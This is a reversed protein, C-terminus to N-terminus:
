HHILPLFLTYLPREQIPEPYIITVNVTITDIGGNGDSVQVVFSDSGNYDTTPIYSIEKSTGMGSANAVGHLAPTLISWTLTDSLDVDTAHLTLSFAIPLGDEVMTVDISNGETIVPVNNVATFTATVTTNANITVSGSVVNASWSGFSWGDAPTASMAVVDGYHYHANGPDATVTGDGIKNITLSYEDQTFTATVTTNANITVSGSVVNASWSGFSWGVAPTASMAVVDGYHYHANGPDATVTGDGIKNITLSYEDQAFSATVTIDATVNTDTRAPTSLSDSWSVFHYGTYPVAIVESGNGGHNVSQPTTGSITGNAGATYTLQFSPTFQALAQIESLNLARNYVLADDMWGRFWHSANTADQAGITLPLNNTAILETTAISSEQIGNIYLRMIAGDYTAAVHMWTGNIPYETTANIRLNDGNAVQNIRFFVKQSSPDTKTTALTLEYGDTVGNTAKNILDQTAYQEPKIWAAITIQNTLDLSADDPVFAYQSTGNLDLAYTGVKGAAWAPSSVISADNTFTSGDVLVTGSGEEMQWCGVLTPDSGCSTGDAIITDIDTTLNNSLIPDTIGGASAVTATNALSGRAGLDVKASVTYTVSAGVPLNVTDNINGSGSATCTGSSAGACTWSVNTLKAPLTDAVTAGNVAQPGSNSATITYTLTDGPRVASTGDTKTIALDVGTTPIVTCIQGGIVSGNSYIVVLESSYNQKTSSVDNFSEARLTKRPGFAISSLNSQRYVIPNNGESQTYVYTLVGRTEDFEINGRTGSEDVAYMDDWTGGPRRVVLAMKPYGATDYSTKIAAFVTGDSEVKVNIHDDAMGYTPSGSGLNQWAPNFPVTETTWTAADAGDTHVFFKYVRNYQNGWLVGVKNISPMTVLATVDDDWVNSAELSVPSSWTSYPSDSYFVKVGNAANNVSVWMRGTSDIDMTAVESGGSMSLAASIVPAQYTGDSFQVTALKTSSVASPEFLLIYASDGLSKVDARVSTSTSLKQVEIWTIDELKWLWTGASTAGSASTPFVAYWTGNYNWLKSQPKEGSSATQPKTNLITCTLDGPPVPIETYNVSATHIGAPMTVTNTSATSTDSTTGTWSSIQSGSTPVAGSLSITAGASYQGTACGTSNAPSVVPDSGQGTHSLTLAYCTPPIVTYNVSATHIGAPMTVTNTSATSTDSTTGTWSSIQSGSTPVAGSLSITAGASYQGTACGTSNAPSAVPDSGQGTHSLTLADCTPAMGALAQIEVLSLARNYVRADDITGQLFNIPTTAPEAGIGLNTANAVIAFGPKTGELVGNIYLRINTGDYTAAVHMWTTGDIPYSTLSNIRYNADNGNLRVFAKGSSALSIEYGNPTSTGITKKIINQTGLKGPRVWAALTIATTADLSNSDPVIAYQGTGSLSLAQGNHGAVWAPTGTINGDNGFATADIIIPSGEGEEMPWCAVLNADSGCLGSAAQTVNWTFNQSSPILDDTVSVSASFPSHHAAHYSITGSILGSGPNISLGDPLGTASYTLTQAPLDVNSAVIQLSVANGETNTQAGPNTVVPADNVATVTVNVTSTNSNVTVDNAQYTFIDSGNYNATPVYNLKGALVSASGHGPQAVISYTLIDGADVDSCSPTAEGTTDEPTTLVVDSCVPADNVATVTVNVIITDTGGNGDSVQLVFNDLGNYNANPIYGVAKSTGTGSASAAGNSAPTSISWTLTDGNPDTANLTKSFATPVGDESMTVSTSAGETIIPPQNTATETTFSWTPSVAAAGSNDAVAYWEYDTNNLLGSWTVTADSGSAVTTSDILTFEATGDMAYPLDLQNNNITRFKDQNPSYTTIHIMNDTPSFHMIRLYGSQSSDVSQYDSRLGYVTRGDYVNTKMGTEDLHGGLMLFLNPNDKLAEYIANAQTTFNNGSLLDHTVVIARKTQNAALIGDAWTIVPSTITMSNDYEIFLVIFDMGSASFTAYTNDYDSAGDPRGGYTLQTSIRTGFATNFNTTSSPAGDHNGLTLGYPVGGTTLIDWATTATTFEGPYTSSSDVNDGLSLVYKINSTTKNAVVWNMQANYISPYSKAYLQPDPIAILTFDAGAPGNKVRGYFSVSLPASRSDTVHVTLPASTSSGTALDAPSVLSPTGPILNIDFPAGPVWAYNTGTITGNVATAISDGVSIGTSENLGWRAVLGTGTTIQHNINTIIETQTLARNWVRAEDIVGKFFGNTGGSTNLMTGLSAHQTTDSRPAAGVVLTTELKGDLYLKWTAGDYTAAAHHWTNDLIPTVGVVPHNLGTAMDEFDAAVTDTVDDIVLMWNADVTSGESQQAGHAVLPIANAIGGSGTTIATGAGTRKFWTEITFTALDLKDPDGFTVYTDSDTTFELASGAELQPISNAENSNISENGSTDVARVVYFYETNNTLGTDSYASTVILNSNVKVYVGSTIGRYVNYGALDSDSNNDWDLAVSRNAGIAVLGTPAAPPTIDIVLNFPAGATWVPGNTLTGPFTGVSSAITTGSGENIGWRALLGTGSTIESNITARIESQTHAVNWIRAEDLVGQFYGSSTGTSTLYTGLGAHQISDYRPLCTSALTRELNGNLYLKLAIGDYTFAGHYWTNNIIPTVGVIPNNDGAPRAGCIAYTEFDAALVNDSSRIGLIYNEDVNSDEAQPSGKTVLPIATVGNTGTSVAIGTGTRKFWTEITFNQTALGAATGFTVYDNTGDFNLGAGLSALPTANVENSAVSQNASADVATVVYYYPTGNTRGGDSFNTVNVLTGGNIPSTLPVSPATARYVNYGAVDLDAPATWSLSVGGSYPNATLGTPAAPPILDPMPFGAVWTSSAVLTGSPRGAISNAATTGTGENLGWRAILGTGSTLEKYMDAQIEAQTRVVDWIRPEDIHGSLYGSTSTPNGSSQLSSALAAHQISTNEPTFASALTLTKDLTGDIYLKWTQGDYTVAIHHWSGAPITATGTVPHNGGNITDEFDASLRGTQSIGMFYNMNLNAPTEGEGMGKTIVPYVSTLGDTGTGMTKGGTANRYVWAELTFIHVGLTSTAQGFTVYQSSGNFSLATGAPAASAKGGPLALASFVLFFVMFLRFSINAIQFYRSTTRKTTM